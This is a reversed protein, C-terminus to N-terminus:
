SNSPLNFIRLDQLLPEQKIGLLSCMSIILEVNDATHSNGSQSFAAHEMALIIDKELLDPFHDMFVNVIFKIDHVSNTNMNNPHEPM